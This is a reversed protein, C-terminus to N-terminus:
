LKQLLVVWDKEPESPAGSLEITSGGRSRQIKGLQLTGGNRPDYWKLSFEGNVQTLDISGKGNKLFVIFLEGPIALCYDGEAVLADVNKTKDMPIENGEFFDILIKCQDWFLDRSAFDQCTLDSHDHRYGFYWETGWAGAMFAGWLGNKRANDHSPNEADPLLSHQADGPEDVAVAWPKGANESANLWRLVQGHVRSFDPKNTQLSIGTYKSDPGLIDDFPAGNHIVVHHRYPDHNCFYEAAALRQITFMPPTPHEKMWDGIEEGINWNLALHHGFRAILERYYLKTNAGIAGNDLLGQNEAELTKFHLFMGLKDAHEFILEWQDLKSCDFRDFTTYDVYPFVNQDDGVINNTLFSFVNMGKSALYNIAGIIAKGKGNKWTPDGPKWHKLHPEWTKVLDDKHGDNHFTGDFDKFALFNEPADPGVKLLPKGTEAFKLYRTGDYLLMGKGRLDKGTKDTGQITFNGEADNMYGASEGTTKKDSVAAFNGKRFDVKYTWEGTAPPAFHVRWKDGATASTEGANGDAAFYGPVKYSKGTATHSFEINFRYNMFPNDVATESLSPGDFTFTVKHWKKLEGKLDMVLKVPNPPTAAGGVDQQTGVDSLNALATAGTGAPALAIGSWRARSFEEGDNSGVESTVSIKDGKQLNINGFLSIFKVGEQFSYPSAPSQFSGIIRDNVWVSYKSNGDNEGVALLLLDFVGDKAKYTHTTIAKTHQDPDIALWKGGRDIYYHTGEIPFSSARLLRMGNVSKEVAYLFSPKAEPNKDVISFPPPLTGSAVEVEPGIGRPIYDKQKELIFRDFEFGDERMSFTIEHIGPNDIDLYILYPEGCHVAQTRQKSEWRWENKGECWQMRQGSEPWTGDMGVHLGNDESGASYARVWVYYRGPNNIKVKYHLLGMAGAVNNFNEGAILVDGHTVRTDPLIELYANNGANKCHSPDEDRGVVAQENKSTRYWRRIESKTQKFFYEAEVSLMGGKEEFIVEESVIPNNFNQASINITIYEIVALILILKKMKMITLNNPKLHDM